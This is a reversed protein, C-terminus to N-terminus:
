MSNVVDLFNGGQSICKNKTALGFEEAVPDFVVRYGNEPAVLVTWLKEDGYLDLQPIELLYNRFPWGFSNHTNSGIERDVRSKVQGATM